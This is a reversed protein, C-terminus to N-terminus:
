ANGTSNDNFRKLAHLAPAARESDSDVIAEVSAIQAIYEPALAHQRAGAVVLDRYWTYPALRSDIHSSDALYVNATVPSSGDHLLVEITTPKYGHGAGEARDLAPLQDLPVDFLVGFVTDSADSTKPIDCKGSGDTSRKHFRLRRGPVYGVSLFKASPVRKPSCLWQRLM